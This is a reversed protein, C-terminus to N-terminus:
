QTVYWRVRQSKLRFHGNLVEFSFGLLFLSELVVENQAEQQGTQQQGEDSSVAHQPQVVEGIQHVHSQPPPAM